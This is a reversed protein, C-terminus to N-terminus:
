SFLVPNLRLSVEITDGDFRALSSVPTYFSGTNTTNDLSLPVKIRTNIM